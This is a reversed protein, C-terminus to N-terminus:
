PIALIAATAAAAILGATTRVRRGKARLRDRESDDDIREIRGDM